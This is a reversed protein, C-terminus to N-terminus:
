KFLYSHSLPMVYWRESCAEEVEDDVTTCLKQSNMSTESTCPRDQILDNACREAESALVDDYEVDPSYHLIRRSNHSYLAQELSIM